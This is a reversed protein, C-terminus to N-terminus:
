WRYILASSAEMILCRHWCRNESFCLFRKEVRAGMFGCLCLGDNLGKRESYLMFVNLMFWKRQSKTNKWRMTQAATIRLQKVPKRAAENWCYLHQFVWKWDKHIWEPAKLFDQLAFWISEAGASNVLNEVFLCGVICCDRCFVHKITQACWCTRLYLVRSEVENRFFHCLTHSLFTINIPTDGTKCWSVRGDRCTLRHLKIEALFIPSLFLLLSLWILSFRVASMEVEVCWSYSLLASSNAATVDKM